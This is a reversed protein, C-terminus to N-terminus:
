LSRNNPLSIHALKNRVQVAISGPKPRNWLEPDAHPAAVAVIMDMVVRFVVTDGANSSVGNAHLVGDLGVAVDLFLNIPDAIKAPEVNQSRFAQRLKTRFVDAGGTPGNLSAETLPTLLDHMLHATSVGLVMAPRRRNTVLRMGLRLLFSNSFVRTHHPSLVHGPDSAAVAFLGAPQGGEVDKIALLQGTAVPFAVISGGEVLVDLEAPLAATSPEIMLLPM